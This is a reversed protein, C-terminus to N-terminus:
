IHILSLRLLYRPQRHTALALLYRLSPPLLDSLQHEALIESITNTLHVTPHVHHSPRPPIGFLSPKQEDIGDTISSMFEMAAEIGHRPQELPIDIIPHLM